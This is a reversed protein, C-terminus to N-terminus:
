ELMETAPRTSLLAKSYWWTYQKLIILTIPCNISYHKIVENPTSASDILVTQSTELQFGLKPIVMKTLTKNM